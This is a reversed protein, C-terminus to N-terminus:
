DSYMLRLPVNLGVCTGLAGIWMLLYDHADINRGSVSAEIVEATRCPHIFFVPKNTAPHDQIGTLKTSDRM